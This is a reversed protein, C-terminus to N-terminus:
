ALVPVTNGAQPDMQALALAAASRMLPAQQNDRVVASLAALVARDKPGIRALAFAVEPCDARLASILAPLAVQAAPGINGLARVCDEFSNRLEKNKLVQIL